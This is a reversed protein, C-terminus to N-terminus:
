KVMPWVYFVLWCVSVMIAASINNTLLRSGQSAIHIRSELYM